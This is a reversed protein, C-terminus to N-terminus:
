HDDSAQQLQGHQVQIAQKPWSSSLAKRWVARRAKARKKDDQWHIVEATLHWRLTLFVWIYQLM